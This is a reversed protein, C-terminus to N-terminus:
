LWFLALCLVPLAGFCFALLIILVVWGLILETTQLCLQLAKTM